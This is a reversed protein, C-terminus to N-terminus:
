DRGRLLSVRIPRLDGTAIGSAITPDENMIRRASEGDPAEFIVIGDNPPDLIPGAMVLTGDALLRKLRTFHESWVAHERGTMTDAFDPRPPRIFYIWTPM